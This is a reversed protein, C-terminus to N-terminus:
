QEFDLASDILYTRVSQNEMLFVAILLLVVSYQGIAAVYVGATWETQLAFTIMFISFLSRMSLISANISWRTTQGYITGLVVALGACGFLGFNAYSEALLGWGITTRITDEYRQRGYRVNLIFTGEHSRIKNSNLIRPVLLQPLIAYTEGHLYPIQSPSKTQTLILMQLVSLREFVSQRSQGPQLTQPNQAKAIYRLSNNAWEAYIAPYESPQTYPPQNPDFWYKARMDAKGLHLFSLILLVAIMPLVPIKKRGVTFAACASMFATGAGVLVFSVISTAMFIALLVIFLQSEQSKLERCGMRYGLVFAALATVAVVTNRLIAFSGGDLQLWGGANAVNFIGSIGLCFLFFQNGTRNGLARYFKPPPPAFKVFQFWVFTGLGLFGSVTFSAILQTSISYSEIVPHKSVLPLGYAYIHTLAFLPFIPLGLAKGSCWLYVPLLAIATTIVAAINCWISQTEPTYLEYGLLAIAFIWFAGLLQKSRRPSWPQLSSTAPSFLPSTM